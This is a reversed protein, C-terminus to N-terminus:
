MPDKVFKSLKKYVDVFNMESAYIAAMYRLAPKFLVPQGEPLLQNIAALGEEIM